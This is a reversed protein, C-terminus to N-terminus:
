HKVVKGGKMVFPVRRVALIDEVPVVFHPRPWCLRRRSAESNGKAFGFTARKQPHRLKLKTLNLYEQYLAAADGSVREQSATRLVSWRGLPIM